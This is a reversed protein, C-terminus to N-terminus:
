TVFACTYKQAYKSDSGVRPAHISIDYMALSKETLGTAGWVPLTSQFEDATMGDFGEIMSTDITEMDIEGKPKIMKESLPGYALILKYKGQM